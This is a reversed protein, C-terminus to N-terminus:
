DYLWAVGGKSSIMSHEPKTIYLLNCHLVLKHALRSEKFSVEPSNVETRAERVMANRECLHSRNRRVEGSPVNVNYPRPEPARSIITGSVQGQPPMDVWVPCDDPLQVLDKSRHRHDYNRKQDERYEEERWKFDALYTWEPQYSKSLQPVDTRLTRGMQGSHADWRDQTHM